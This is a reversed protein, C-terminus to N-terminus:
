LDAGPVLISVMEGATILERDPPVVIYCSAEVVTVVDGSGQWNLREAQVDGMKGTLRAPLFRTLGLKTRLDGALRAQVFRLARVPRGALAELVPRVLLEFTVMTSVPNGPLGFVRTRRGGNMTAEGFVVPKGPQILAGIFLFRVGFEALVSEVIDYKGMSVGGSLLLLDSQLGEAILERLRNPDDPSTPLISPAGGAARVQAALSFSNSNRIQYPGPAADLPVLEDGTALIAVTPRPYVALEAQGVSAAAAIAAHGIRTGRAVLEQGVHAESGRPVINEGPEAGRQFTVFSGNLKTYEVMVVANAGNPVAAGTMISICEGEGIRFKGADGGAKLEGLIKLSMVAGRLDEVRVAYGDRASRPFPPLDRDATISEALVRGLSKELSVQETKEPHLTAAYQEVM